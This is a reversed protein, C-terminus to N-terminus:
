KILTQGAMLNKLEQWKKIQKGSNSANLKIIEM